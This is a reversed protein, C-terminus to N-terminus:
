SSVASPRPPRPGTASRSICIRWSSSRPSITPRPSRPPASPRRSRRRCTGPTSCISYRPSRSQPRRARPPATVPPQPSPHPPPSPQQPPSPQPPPSPQQPSLISLTTPVPPTATPPITSLSGAKIFVSSDLAADGTDAIALKLTNPVGRNVPAACTLVRTLGDMQTNYPSAGGAPSNDLYLEPNVAVNPPRKVNSADPNANNITNISVPQGKVLACNTGNVYFAFVDNFDSHVYEPYEESAFVFDFFVNDGNPVFEFTLVAANETAGTQGEQSALATLEADGGETAHATTHGAENNPGVVGAINGTSLIIGSDFGIIGAGGTFTGAALNNGTFSANSITVGGGSGVLAEALSQATFGDTTMDQTKLGTSQAALLTFSSLALLLAAMVILALRRLNAMRGAVPPGSLQTVDPQKM